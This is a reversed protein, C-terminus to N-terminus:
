PRVFIRVPDVIRDHPGANVASIVKDEQQKVTREIREIGEQIKRTQVNLMNNFHVKNKEIAEIPDCQIECRVEEFNFKTTTRGISPSISAEEHVLEEMTRGSHIAVSGGKQKVLIALQRQEPTIFKEHILKAM